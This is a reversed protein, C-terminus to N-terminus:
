PFVNELEGLSLLTIWLIGVLLSLAASFCEVRFKWIRSKGLISSFSGYLAAFCGMVVTSTLCFSGLYLSALRWDKIQVAPIIGLVGGPGALGHVIGILFSITRTSLNQIFKQLYSRIGVRQDIESPERKETALNNNESGQLGSLTMTGPEVQHNADTQIASSDVTPVGSGTEEDIMTTGTLGDSELLEYSSQKHWARFMGFCGLVLM